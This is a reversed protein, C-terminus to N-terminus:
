CVGEGVVKPSPTLLDFKLKKLVHDHQVGFLLFDRNCCCQLLYKSQLGGGKSGTSSTLLDLNFSKQFLNMNCILNFPIMFHLLMTGFLQDASGM